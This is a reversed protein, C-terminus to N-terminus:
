GVPVCLEEFLSMARPFSPALQMEKIIKNYDSKDKTPSHFDTTFDFEVVDVNPEAIGNIKCIASVCVLPESILQKFPVIFISLDKCKQYYACYWELVQEARNTRKDQMLTIWSPVCEIPNRITVTMNQEKELAFLFHETYVLSCEPLTKKLLAELFHNGSRPFSGFSIKDM